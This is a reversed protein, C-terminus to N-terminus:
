MESLTEKKTGFGLKGVGSIKGTKDCRLALWVIGFFKM